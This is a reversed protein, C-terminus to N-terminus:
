SVIGNQLAFRILSAYNVTGTRAFLLEFHRKVAPLSMSLQRGIGVESMGRAVLQLLQVEHQSFATHQTSFTQPFPSHRLKDAMILLYLENSLYRGGDSLLHLCFLLEVPKVDRLLYADIGDVFRPVAFSGDGHVRVLWVIRTAPSISRTRDVLEVRVTWPLELGIFLVDVSQGSLYGDLDLVDVGDGLITWQSDAGISSAINSRFIPDSDFLLINKM